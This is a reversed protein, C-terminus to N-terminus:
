FGEKSYKEYNIFYSIVNRIKESWIVNPCGNKTHSGTPLTIGMGHSCYTVQFFQLIKDSLKDVHLSYIKAFDLMTAM